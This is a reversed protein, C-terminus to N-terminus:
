VRESFGQWLYLLKLVGDRANHATDPATAFDPM